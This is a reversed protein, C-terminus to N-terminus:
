ASKEELGPHVLYVAQGTHKPIGSDVQAPGKIQNPREEIDQQQAMQGVRDEVRHGGDGIDPGKRQGGGKQPLSDSSLLQDTHGGDQGAHQNQGM